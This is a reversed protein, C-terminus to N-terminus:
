IIDEMRVKDELPHTNKWWNYMDNCIEDREEQSKQIYKICTDVFTNYKSYILKNFSSDEATEHPTEHIVFIKNSLLWSLRYFDISLDIEYYNVIIVIKTKKINNFLDRVDRTSYILTTYGFSDLQHMINCRRDNKAGFLLFNRSKDDTDDIDFNQNFFTELFPHYTFPVYFTFSKNKIIFLKM